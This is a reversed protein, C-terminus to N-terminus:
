NFQVKYEFHVLCGTWINFYILIDMNSHLPSLKKDKMERRCLCVLLKHEQKGGGEFCTLFWDQVPM